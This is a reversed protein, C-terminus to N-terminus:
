IIQKYFIGTDLIPAYASDEVNGRASALWSDIIYFLLSLLLLIVVPSTLAIMEQKSIFYSKKHIKSQIATQNAFFFQLM